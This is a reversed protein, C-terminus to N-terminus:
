APIQMLTRGLSNDVDVTKRDASITYDMYSGHLPIAVQMPKLVLVAKEEERKPTYSLAKVVRNVVREGESLKAERAREAAERRNRRTIEEPQKGIISYVTDKSCGLSKAIAANGMGGERMSLLDARNMDKMFGRSKTYSM